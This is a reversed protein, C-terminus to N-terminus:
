IWREGRAIRLWEEAAGTAAAYRIAREELSPAQWPCIEEFTPHVLRLHGARDIYPLQAVLQAYERRTFLVRADYGDVDVDPICRVGLSGREDVHVCTSRERMRTVIESVRPDLALTVEAIRAGERRAQELEADHSM